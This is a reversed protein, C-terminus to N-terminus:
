VLEVTNSKIQKVSGKYYLLISSPITDTSNLIDQLGFQADKHVLGLLYPSLFVSIQEKPQHKFYWNFFAQKNVRYKIKEKSKGM